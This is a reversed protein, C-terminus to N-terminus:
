YIHNSSFVKDSPSGVKISLDGEEKKHKNFFIRIIKTKDKNLSSIKGQM